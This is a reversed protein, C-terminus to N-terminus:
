GLLDLTTEDLGDSAPLSLMSESENSTAVTGKGSASGSQPPGDYRENADRDGTKGTEELPNVPEAGVASNKPGTSHKSDGLAQQNLAAANTWSSPMIQM